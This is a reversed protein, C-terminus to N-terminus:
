FPKKANKQGREDILISDIRTLNLMEKAESKKINRSEINGVSM